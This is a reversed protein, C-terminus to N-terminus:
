REDASRVHIHKIHNILNKDLVNLTNNIRNKVWAINNGAKGILIGASEKCNASIELKGNRILRLNDYNLAIFSKLFLTHNDNVRIIISKDKGKKAYSQRAEDIMEETVSEVKNNTMDAIWYRDIYVGEPIDLDKVKINSEAPCLAQLSIIQLRVLEPLVKLDSNSINYLMVLRLITDTTDNSWEAKESMCPYIHFIKESLKNLNEINSFKKDYIYNDAFKNLIDIAKKDGSNAIDAIANRLQAVIIWGLGTLTDVKHQCSLILERTVKRKEM